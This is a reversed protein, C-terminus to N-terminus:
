INEQIKQSNFVLLKWLAQILPMSKRKHPQKKGVSYDYKDLTFILYVNELYHIYNKVTNISGLQLITKLKSYSLLAGPNSLLWLSLERLAKVSKSKMGFSSMKIYFIKM